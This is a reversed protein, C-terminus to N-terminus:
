QIRAGKTDIWEKPSPVFILPRAGYASLVLAFLVFLISTESDVYIGPSLQM